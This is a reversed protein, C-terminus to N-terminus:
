VLGKIHEAEVDLPKLLFGWGSANPAPAPPKKSKCTRCVRDVAATPSGCGRICLPLNNREWDRKAQNTCDKCRNSRGHRVCHHFRDLPQEEKCVRCTKLETM